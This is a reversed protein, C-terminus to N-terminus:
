EIVMAAVESELPSADLTAATRGHITVTTQGCQLNAVVDPPSTATMAFRLTYDPAGTCSTPGPVAVLLDNFTNKLREVTRGDTVLFEHPAHGPDPTIAPELTVIVVRDEPSVREAPDRRSRWVVQADARVWTTTATRRAVSMQLQATVTWTARLLYPPPSFLVMRVTVHSGGVSYGCCAGDVWTPPVHSRFFSVVPDSPANVIWLRHVDVLNPTSEAEFAAAVSSPPPGLYLQAQSPLIAMGVLEAALREAAAKRVLDADQKPSSLRRGAPTSNVTRIGGGGGNNAWAVVAIGTAVTCVAMAAAAFRRRMRYRHARALVVKIPTAEAVARQNLARAREELEIM